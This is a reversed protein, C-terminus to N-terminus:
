RTEAILREVALRLEAARALAFAQAMTLAETATPDPM